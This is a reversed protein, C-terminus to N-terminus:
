SFLSSILRLRLSKRVAVHSGPSSALAIPSYNVTHCASKYSYSYSCLVTGLQVMYNTLANLTIM